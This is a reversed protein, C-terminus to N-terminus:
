VHVRMEIKTKTKLLGGKHVGHSVSGVGLTLESRMMDYM